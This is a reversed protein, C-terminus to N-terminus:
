VYHHIIFRHNKSVMLGAHTVVIAQRYLSFSVRCHARCLAASGGAAFSARDLEPLLFCLRTALALLTALEKSASPLHKMLTNLLSSAASHGWAEPLAGSLEGERGLLGAPSPLLLHHPKRVWGPPSVHHWFCNRPDQKLNGSM